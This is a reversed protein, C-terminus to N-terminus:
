RAFQFPLDVTHEKLASHNGIFIILQEDNFTLAQGCKTVTINEFKKVERVLVFFARQPFGNDSV